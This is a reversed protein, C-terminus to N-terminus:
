WRRAVGYADFIRENSVLTLDELSAQAIPM